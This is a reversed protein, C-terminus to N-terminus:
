TEDGEQEPESAEVDAAKIVEAEALVTIQGIVTPQAAAAENM